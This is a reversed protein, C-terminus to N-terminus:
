NFPANMPIKIDPTLILHAHDPMVVFEHLLFKGRQRYDFMTELFLETLEQARFVPKREYCVSTIFFTREYVRWSGPGGSARIFGHEEVSRPWLM